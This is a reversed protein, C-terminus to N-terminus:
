VRRPYLPGLGGDGATDAPPTSRTLGRALAEKLTAGKWGAGDDAYLARDLALVAEGGQALAAALATLSRPPEAPWQAAAWALLNRAAAAADNADCAVLFARRAPEPDPRPNKALATPAAAPAPARSRRRHWLWGALAALLAVAAGALLWPNQLFGWPTPAPATTAGSASPKDAAPQPDPQGSTVAAPAPAREASVPSNAGPQVKADIAPILAEREQNGRTDWWKVRVEPLRLDGARQPILAFAQQSTGYILNGDTRTESRPAEPYVRVAEGAELVVQPIQSGSLGRARLTLTRTVPEGVRLEPAKGAWSDEMVLDEAPLWHGSAAAPKPKVEIDLGQSRVTVPRGPEFAAFPDDQLFRDFASGDFFRDFFPDNRFREFPSPQRSSRGGGEAPLSGKFVVPPIHLSGSQEPSLAFRRELVQYRKGGWDATYRKDEGLREIVAHEAQPDSLNGQRLPAASYLRVTLPVQQQVYAAGSPLDAQLEVFVQDDRQPISTADAVSLTLPRTREAGISLPPVQLEGIHRPKLTIQWRLTDSRRGNVISIQTSSSTGLVEFDRNLPSLDPQAAGIGDVEVSLTTIDGQYIRNRDLSARAEAWLPGPLTLALLLLLVAL